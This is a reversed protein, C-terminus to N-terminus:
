YLRYNIDYNEGFNNAWYEQGNVQYCVAYEFKDLHYGNTRIGSADIYATWLETGDDNTESYSLPVDTYTDWGDTTFRVFVNKNYAYNQLLAFIPFNDYDYSIDSRRRVTIPAVGLAETGNYNNGNNNDWYTVGDAVYKIAYSFSINYSYSTICTHAVKWIKSGDSLTTVFEAEHDDWGDPTNINHGDNFHIFVSEDSANGTTKIYIHYVKTGYKEFQVGTSYLSVKDTAASATTAGAICMVSLMIAIATIISAIRKTTKTM